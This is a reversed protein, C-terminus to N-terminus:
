LLKGFSLFPFHQVPLTLLPLAQVPAASHGLSFLQPHDLVAARCPSLSPQTVEQPGELGPIWSAGPTVECSMAGSQARLMGNKCSLRATFVGGESHLEAAGGQGGQGAQSGPSHEEHGCFM